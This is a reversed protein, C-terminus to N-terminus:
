ASGDLMIGTSSKGQSRLLNMLDDIDNSTVEGSEYKELFSSIEDSEEEEEEAPRPPPPGKPGGAGGPGGAKGAAAVEFGEGELIGKLDKGAGIGADSLEAKMESKLEDTMNASDYKSIIDVAQSKQEDTLSMNQPRYMPM